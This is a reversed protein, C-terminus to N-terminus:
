PKTLLTFVHTFVHTELGRGVGRTIGPSMVTECVHDPAAVRVARTTTVIAIRHLSSTSLPPAQMWRQTSSFDSHGIQRWAQRRSSNPRDLSSRHVAHALAPTRIDVLNIYAHHNSCLLEGHM